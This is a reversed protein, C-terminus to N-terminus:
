HMPRYKVCLRRSDIFLGSAFRFSAGLLSKLHRLTAIRNLRWRVILCRRRGLQLGQEDIIANVKFSLLFLRHLSLCFLLIPRHWRIFLLHIWLLPPDLFDLVEIVFKLQVFLLLKFASLQYIFYLLPSHIFHRVCIDCLSIDISCDYAWVVIMILVLESKVSARFENGLSGFNVSSLHLANTGLCRLM